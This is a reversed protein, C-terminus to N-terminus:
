RLPSEILEILVPVEGSRVFAGAAVRDRVAWLAFSWPIVNISEVILLLLTNHLEFETLPNLLWPGQNYLYKCLTQFSINRGSSSPSMELCVTAPDATQAWVCRAIVGRDWHM